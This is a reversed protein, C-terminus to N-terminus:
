GSYTKLKRRKYIERRLDCRDEVSLFDRCSVWARGLCGAACVPEDPCSRCKPIRASRSRKLQMLPSWLPVGEAYVAPLSKSFVDSVAYDDSHFMVCPYLRGDPTLYPTEIFTCCEPSLVEATYWELAAVKGLKAYLERFRPDSDYRDILELYQDLGAPALTADEGARGYPVLSGAVVSFIGMDRARELLDPIELLNHRMETFFLVIRPGFGSRILRRLGKLTQDFAGEGRVLDHTPPTAGDLSIQIALGPFDLERLAALHEDEILMGNTQLSIRHFGHSRACRMIELWDPHCLPEGGTLNLERGGLAAFEKIVRRVQVTPAQGAGPTPDADVWCHLCSLNCVRTISLTLARPPKLGAKEMMQLCTDTM